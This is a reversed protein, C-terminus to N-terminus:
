SNRQKNISRQLQRLSRKRQRMSKWHRFWSAQRLKYVKEQSDWAEWYDITSFDIEAQPWLSTIFQGETIECPLQPNTDAAVHSDAPFLGVTGLSRIMIPRRGVNIVQLEIFRAKFDYRPDGVVQRNRRVILKVKARDRKFNITSLVAGYAAVILAVIATVATITEFHTM